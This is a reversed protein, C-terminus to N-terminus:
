SGQSAELTQLTSDQSQLSRSAVAVTTDDDLRESAELYDVLSQIEFDDNSTRAFIDNWFGPVAERKSITLHELGDSSVAAADAGSGDARWIEYDRSTLLQTINAFAQPESSFMQLAGNARIISFSDGVGATAWNDGDLLVVALTCGVESDELELISQIASEVLFVASDVSAESVENLTEAAATVATLSGVDSRELSGAGDSVALLLLGNAEHVIVSDQNPISRLVHYPGAATGTTTSWESKM